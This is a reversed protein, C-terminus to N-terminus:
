SCLSWMDGLVLHPEQMNKLVYLHVKGILEKITGVNPGTYDDPLYEVPLCEMPIEKYINELVSGCNM